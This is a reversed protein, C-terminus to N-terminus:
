VNRYYIIRLGELILNEEIKDIHKTEPVILSALGGTALVLPSELVERKIREILGDVMSAFGYILGANMCSVTDKNIVHKPKSFIEVRPLKSAHVFLAEASILMGPAIIGGKYEGRESIYDLTTATGFDVIILACRYKEYGAVANVIRDAGIEHPNDYHIPMGTRTGPGVLLPKCGFYRQGLNLVSNVMPPVVCSVVMDEIEEFSIGKFRFLNNLYIALEDPTVGQITRFRWVDKLVDGQYLGVVTHTNGIDMVLLM